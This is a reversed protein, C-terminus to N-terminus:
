KRQWKSADWGFNVGRRKHTTFALLWGCPLGRSQRWNARIALPGFTRREINLPPVRRLFGIGLTSHVHRQESSNVDSHHLQARANHLGTWHMWSCLRYWCCPRYRFSHARRQRGRAVPPCSMVPCSPTWPFGRILFPSCRASSSRRRVPVSSAVTRAAAALPPGDRRHTGPTPTSQWLDITHLAATLNASQSQGTKDQQKRSFISETGFHM